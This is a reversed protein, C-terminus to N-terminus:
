PESETGRLIGMACQDPDLYRWIADHIEEYGVAALREPYTQVAEMGLGRVEADAYRFARQSNGQMAISHMGLTFRRSREVEERRPGEQRLRGIEQFLVRRAEAEDGPSTALYVAFAGGGIRHYNFSHVAYAL